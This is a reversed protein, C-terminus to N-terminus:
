EVAAIPAGGDRWGRALMSTYLKFDVAQIDREPGVFAEIWNILSKARKYEHRGSILHHRYAAVARGFSVADQRARQAAAAAAVDDRLRKEEAEKLKGAEVRSAARDSPYPSVRRLRVEISQGWVTEKPVKQRAAERERFKPCKSCVCFPPHSVWPVLEYRGKKGSVADAEDRYM